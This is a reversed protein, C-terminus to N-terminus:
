VYEFNNATSISVDPFIITDYWTPYLTGKVIKSCKQHGMFQVSVYSDALGNSDAAPLSRAQYLHVRVQYNTYRTADALANKWAKATRKCDDVLGFGIRILISGPFEGADLYDLAKDEKMYVWETGADFGITAYKDKSSGQVGKAVLKVSPIRSYCVPRGAETILYM